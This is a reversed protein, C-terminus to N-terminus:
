RNRHCLVKVFEDHQYRCSSRFWQYLYSFYLTIPPKLIYIKIKEYVLLYIEIISIKQKQSRDTNTLYGKGEGLVFLFLHRQRSCHRPSPRSEMQTDNSRDNGSNQIKTKTEMSGNENEQINKFLTQIISLLHKSSTQINFQYYTLPINMNHQYLISIM